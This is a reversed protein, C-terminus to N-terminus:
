SRLGKLIGAVYSEQKAVSYGVVAMLLENTKGCFFLHRSTNWIAIAKIHCFLRWWELADADVKVGSTREWIDIVEERQLFGATLGPRSGFEWNPLLAWALDELPDGKHVMEWDIIGTIEAEDFLYNGIRYDGHVISIKQPPPPPTRRLHRLGASTTPLGVADNDRLMKEIRELEINHIDSPHPTPIATELDLSAPEIAALAGLIEISQIAIGKGRSAYPPQLLYKPSQVGPILSTVIFPRGFPEDTEEMCYPHPVKIRSHASLERLVSYEAARNAPVPSAADEILLIYPQSTTYDRDKHSAIVKVVCRSLGAGSIREVSTISFDELALTSGLYRQARDRFDIRM